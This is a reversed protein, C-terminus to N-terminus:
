AGGLSMAVQYVKDMKALTEPKLWVKVETISLIMNILTAVLKGIISIMPIFKQFMNQIRTLLDTSEMEAVIKKRVEVREKSSSFYQPDKRLKRRVKKKAKQDEVYLRYQLEEIERMIDDHSTNLQDDVEKLIQLSAEEREKRKKEEKKKGMICILGGKYKM